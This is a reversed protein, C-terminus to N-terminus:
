ESSCAQIAAELSAAWGPNTGTGRQRLLAPLLRADAFEKAAELVLDGADERDLELILPELAREDRRRALGALAEARTDRHPDTLRRLLAERIQPSDAELLSGVGFTAWDRVDDDRDDMLDILAPIGRSDVVIQQQEHYEIICGPLACAVQFRIDENPHSKLNLLLDVGDPDRLKGLASAIANLVDDEPGIASMRKLQDFAAPVFASDLEGIWGLLTAALERDALASEISLQRAVAFADAPHAKVLSFLSLRSTTGEGDTAWEAVYAAWGDRLRDALPQPEDEPSM